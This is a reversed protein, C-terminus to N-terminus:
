NDYYISFNEFKMGTLQFLIKDVYYLESNLSAYPDMNRPFDNFSEVFSGKSNFYGDMSYRNYGYQEEYFCDPTEYPYLCLVVNREVDEDSTYKIYIEDYDFYYDITLDSYSTSRTLTKCESYNTYKGKNKVINKLKEFAEFRESEIDSYDDSYSNGSEQGNSYGAGRNIFQPQTLSYLGDVTMYLARDSANWSINGLMTLEEVPIMTVGNIAYSTLRYGAAYVTIDTSLIYDYRAGTPQTKSFDMQTPYAVAHNRDIHLSRTEQYWVVDFGFNRLDEAIIASQGNVAYSPIAFNNIYVVIDTHLAEGIVTGVPVASVVYGTVLILAILILSLIKKM